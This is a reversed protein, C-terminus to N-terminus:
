GDREQVKLAAVRDAGFGRYGVPSYGAALQARFRALERAARDEEVVARWRRAAEEGGGPGQKRAIRAQRRNIWELTLWPPDLDPFNTGITQESREAGGGVTFSGSLGLSLPNSRVPLRAPATSPGQAPSVPGAPMNHGPCRPMHGNLQVNAAQELEAALLELDLLSFHLIMVNVGFGRGHYGGGTGPKRETALFGRRSLSRIMRGTQEPGIPPSMRKGLWRQSRKCLRGGGNKGPWSQGFLLRCLDLERAKLRPGDQRGASTRHGPRVSGKPRRGGAATGGGERRESPRVM